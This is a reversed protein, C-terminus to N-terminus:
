LVRFKFIDIFPETEYLTFYDMFYYILISKLAAGCVPHLKSLVLHVSLNASM